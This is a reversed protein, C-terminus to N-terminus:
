WYGDDRELTAQGYIPLERTDPDEKFEYRLLTNEGADYAYGFSDESHHADEPWNEGDDDYDDSDYEEDYMDEEDDTGAEQPNLRAWKPIRGRRYGHHYGNRDMYDCETAAYLTNRKEDWSIARVANNGTALEYVMACTRIDWTKISQSRDGGTFVVPIGDPHILQVASCFEGSRGSDLTMTPTPHRVDYLRAYGDSRGTAFVNADGDSISFTEVFGGHGLYRAVKKGGNELDLAYCGYRGATKRANEGALMLGSPEHLALTVPGFTKDSDPLKITSTAKSGTSREIEDNDNDRWSDVNLKGKGVRKGGKHTALKDVDWVAFSGTGARALRGGPLMTVLGDHSGSDLTHVNTGRTPSWDKFSADGKHGWFFSKVRYSDAIFVLKHLT